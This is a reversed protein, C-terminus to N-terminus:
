AVGAGSAPTGRAGAVRATSDNPSGDRSVTVDPNTEAPAYAPAPPLQRNDRAPLVHLRYINGSLVRSSLTGQLLLRACVEVVIAVDDSALTLRDPEEGFLTQQWGDQGYSRCEQALAATVAADGFRITDDDWLAVAPDGGPPQHVASIVYVLAAPADLEHRHLYGGLAAIQDGDPVTERSVYDAMTAAIRGSAAAAKTLSYLDFALAAVVLVVAAGIGLEITAAGREDRAMHSLLAPARRFPSRLTM